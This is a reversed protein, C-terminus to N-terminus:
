KRLAITCICFEIKEWLTTIQRINKEQPQRREQKLEGM